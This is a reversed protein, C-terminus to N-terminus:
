IVTFILRRLVVGIKLSEKSFTAIFSASQGIIFNGQKATGRTEEEADEDDYKMM